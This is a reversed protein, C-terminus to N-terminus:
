CLVIYVLAARLSVDSHSVKYLIFSLMLHKSQMVDVFTLTCVCLVSLFLFILHIAANFAQMANCTIMMSNVNCSFRVSWCLPLSPCKVLGEDTVPRKTFYVYMTFSVFENYYM